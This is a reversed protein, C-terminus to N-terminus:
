LMKVDVFFLKLKLRMEGRNSCMNKDGFMKLEYSLQM